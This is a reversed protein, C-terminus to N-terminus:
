LKSVVNSQNVVRFTTNATTTVKIFDKATKEWTDPIKSMQTSWNPWWGSDLKVKLRGIAENLSKASLPDFYIAQDGCLIKAYPLNPCIIPLGVFMAEVLPFGYSEENSLFLLGDTLRYEKVVQYPQLLGVCKIWPLHPAPNISPALTLVIKSILSSCSPQLKSLLKHNKHPYFAAPYFLSLSKKSNIRGFRRIESSSLWDPVPQPLTYIKSSPLSYKLKLKVKMEETQVIFMSVRNKNLKFLWSSILHKIKLKFFLKTNSICLHPTHVLVIQPSDCRIPLDGLVLLPVTGSFNGGLFTCELFRSLGNPLWRRYLTIKTRREKRKYHSLPGTSPLYLNEVHTSKDSEIAPLLSLALQTAGTGAINTLHIRIKKIKSSM